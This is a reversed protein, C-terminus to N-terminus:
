AQERETRLRDLIPRLAAVAAANDGLLEIAREISRIDANLRLRIDDAAWKAERAAQKAAKRSESHTGCTTPNGNADPDFKAKNGCQRNTGWDSVWISEACLSRDPPHGGRGFLGGYSKRYEM